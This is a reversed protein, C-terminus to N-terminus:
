VSQERSHYDRLLALRLQLLHFGRLLFEVALMQFQGAPESCQQVFIDGQVLYGFSHQRHVVNTRGQGSEIVFM